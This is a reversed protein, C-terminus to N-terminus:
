QNNITAHDRQQKNIHFKQELHKLSELDVKKENEEANDQFRQVTKEAIVISM